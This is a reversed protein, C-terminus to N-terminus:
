LMMIMVMMLMMVDDGDADDKMVDHYDDGYDFDFNNIM